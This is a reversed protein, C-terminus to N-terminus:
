VHTELILLEDTYYIVNEYM